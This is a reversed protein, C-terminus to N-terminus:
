LFPPQAFTQTLFQFIVHCSYECPNNLFKEAKVVSANGFGGGEREVCIARQHRFGLDEKPVRSCSRDCEIREAKEVLM